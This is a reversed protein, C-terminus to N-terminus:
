DRFAVTALRLRSLAEPGTAPGHGSRIAARRQRPANGVASVSDRIVTAAPAPAAQTHRRDERASM